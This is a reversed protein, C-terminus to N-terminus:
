SCRKAPFLRRVPKRAEQRHGEVKDQLEAPLIMGCSSVVTRYFVRGHCGGRRPFSTGVAQLWGEGERVQDRGM